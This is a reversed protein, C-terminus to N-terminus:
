ISETSMSSEPSSSPNGPNVAATWLELIQLLVPIDSDVYDMLESGRSDAVAVELLDTMAVAVDSVDSDKDKTLESFKDYRESLETREPKPMRLPHRLTFEDDDVEIVFDQYKEKSARRIDDLKM